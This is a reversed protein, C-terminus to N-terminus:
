LRKYTNLHTGDVDYKKVYGSKDTSFYGVATGSKDYIMTKYPSVPKFYGAAHGYKDYVYTTGPQNTAYKSLMNGYKDYKTTTGFGDEIYYGTEAGYTDYEVISINSKLNYKNVKVGTKNINKISSGIGGAYNSAAYASGFILSQLLLFSIVSLVSKNMYINNFRM